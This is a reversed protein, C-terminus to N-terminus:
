PRPGRLVFRRRVLDWLVSNDSASPYDSLVMSTEGDTAWVWECGGGPTSSCVGPVLKEKLANSAHLLFEDLKQSDAARVVAFALSSRQYTARGAIIVSAGRVARVPRFECEAGVGLCLGGLREFESASTISKTGCGVPVM